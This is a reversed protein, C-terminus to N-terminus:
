KLWRIAEPLDLESRDSYMYATKVVSHVASYVVLLHPLARRGRGHDPVVEITPSITAACIDASRAYVLVSGQPYRAATRLDALYEEATTGISWQEEVLVRKVLHIDLPAALSGLTIDGYTLGRERTRVRMPRQNFPAMAIREVIAAIDDPTAVTEPDRVLRMIREDVPHIPAPEPPQV